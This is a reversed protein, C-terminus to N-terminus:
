TWRRAGDVPIIHGSIYDNDLLLFAIASAIPEAGGVRQLPISAEEAQRQEPSMSEPWLIAGPAVGNVRIEPALELALSHTVMALGAKAACYVTHGRLPRDAHVDVLNIIHGIPSRKLWPVAANALFLPGKLNSGILDNWSTENIADGTPTPYFTSANNILADLQGWVSAAAAITAAAQATETVDAPLAHASDPRQANLAEVLATADGRSHRYTIVIRCGREHLHRATAAGIRRAAGTILVVPSRAQTM